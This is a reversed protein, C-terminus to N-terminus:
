IEAFITPTSALKKTTTRESKSRWTMVAEVRRSISTLLKLESPQINELWLCWRQENHLLEQGGIFPKLFKIADPNEQLIADYDSKFITLNGDDLAFSGYSPEPVNCLPERRAPLVVDPADVLYPNINEAAIHHPQGKIDAYEFLHKQQADDFGFGIIVCHVAAKGPAENSWQFTRHAFQIHMGQALLYSWLVGVQEGQTISNTSVFACKIQRRQSTELKDASAFMDEIGTKAHLSSFEADSFQHKDRSISGIKSGTLYQATKIYWGAVYDLVGASKIGKTVFELDEKQGASQNQKGIFPPNGVIYHLKSPPCLSEWDLRLANGIRINASKSLPIRAFWEGFLEGTAINMQHDILWMAVQAIQAPFEEIEIGSFQDVDVSIAKFISGTRSGFAEAAKLVELELLRLERYTIVLFNGCGCAPDLFKLSTIKKHFEFLQNQHHRVQEFEAKLEDLFLPGILKLINEESTYHAGMQRRRDKEDLDIIKQFMAGFISPSIKSWDLECCDVLLTRMQTTFDPLDIREEFLKGNVYPYASYQAPLSKQRKEYDQNLTEFMKGLVMGLDSGDEKTDSLLHDLMMDRPTFIGTDDAFLCFLMRVLLLELKHGAYGDKKLADHLKGMKEVAKINIPDQERIIRKTYGLIFSFREINKHLDQLKFEANTNTDLDYLRFNAFDSVLIFRPLEEEKLGEFYDFAQLHAAELDQGASKHEILLTAPWFCDIRGKNKNLKKVSAEYRAVSRRPVGFIAFFENWFSQAEARESAEGQWEKAFAISRTKIEQWNPASM